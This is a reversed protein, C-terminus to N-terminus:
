EEACFPKKENQRKKGCNRCENGTEECLTHSASRCIREDLSVFCKGNNKSDESEKEDKAHHARDDLSLIHDNQILPLLKEDCTCEKTAARPAKNQRQDTDNENSNDACEASQDDITGRDIRETGPNVPQNHFLFLLM